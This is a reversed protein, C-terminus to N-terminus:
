GYLSEELMLEVPVEVDNLQLPHGALSRQGPQAHGDEAVKVDGRRKLAGFRHNSIPQRDNLRVVVVIGVM